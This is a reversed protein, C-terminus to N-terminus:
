KPTTVLRRERVAACALCARIDDETLEAYNASIQEHSMGAALWALVDAVAIRM